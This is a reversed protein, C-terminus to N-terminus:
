RRRINNEDHIDNIRDRIQIFDGRSEMLNWDARFSDIEASEVYPTIRILASNFSQRETFPMYMFVVVFLVVLIAVCTIAINAGLILNRKRQNMNKVKTFETITLNECSDVIKECYTQVLSIRLNVIDFSSKILSLTSVETEDEPNDQKGDNESLEVELTKNNGIKKAQRYYVFYSLPKELFRCIIATFIWISVIRTLELGDVSAAMRYYFDIFTQIFGSSSHRIMDFIMNLFWIVATLAIVHMAKIFKTPHKMNSDM